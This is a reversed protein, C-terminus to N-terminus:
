PPPSTADAERDSRRELREYAALLTNRQLATLAGLAVRYSDPALFNADCVLSERRATSRSAKGRPCIDQHGAGQNVEGRLM